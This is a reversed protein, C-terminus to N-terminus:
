QMLSAFFDNIKQEEWKLEGQRGLFGELKEHIEYSIRKNKNSNRDYHNKKSSFSVSINKGKVLMAYFKKDDYENAYKAKREEHLIKLQNRISNGLVGLKTNTSYNIITNMEEMEKISKEIINSSYEDLDDMFDFCSKYSNIDIKERNSLAPHLEIRMKILDDIKKILDSAKECQTTDQESINKIEEQPNPNENSSPARLKMNNVITDEIRDDEM